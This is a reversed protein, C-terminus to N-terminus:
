RARHTGRRPTLLTRRAVGRSTGALQIPSSVSLWGGTRLGEPEQAVVALDVREQAVEVPRPRPLVVEPVGHPLPVLAGDGRQAVGLLGIRGVQVAHGLEEHARPHRGLLGHHHEDGLGEAVVGVEHLLVGLGDGEVLEPLAELLAPVAGGQEDEGVALVDAGAEVAVAEAGGAEPHRVVVHGVHCRLDADEALLPDKLVGAADHGLATQAGALHDEGVELVPLEVLGGLDGLLDGLPPGVLLPQLPQAPEAVHVGRGIARLGHVGGGVVEAAGGREPEGRLVRREHDLVHGCVADLGGVRHAVVVGERDEGGLGVHDVVVELLAEGLDGVGRDVGKALAEHHGQLHTEAGAAVEELRAGLADVLHEDLRGHQELALELGDLAHRVELGGGERGLEGRPAGPGHSRRDVGQALVDLLSHTVAALDDDERVAHLLDLGCHTPARDAPVRVTPLEAPAPLGSPLEDDARGSRRRPVGRGRGM